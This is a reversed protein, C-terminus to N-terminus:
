PGARGSEKSITGAAQRSGWHSSAVAHARELESGSGDPDLKELGKEGWGQGEKVTGAARLSPM